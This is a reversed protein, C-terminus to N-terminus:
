KFLDGGNMRIGDKTTLSIVFTCSGDYGLKSNLNISFIFDNKQQNLSSSNLNSQKPRSQQRKLSLM